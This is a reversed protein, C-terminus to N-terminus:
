TPVHNRIQNERNSANHSENHSSREQALRLALVEFVVSPDLQTIQQFLLPTLRTDIPGIEWRELRDQLPGLFATGRPLPLVSWFDVLTEVLALEVMAQPYRDILQELVVAFLTANDPSGPSSIAGDLGDDGALDFATVIHHLRQQDIMQQLAM